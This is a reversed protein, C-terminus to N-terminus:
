AAVQNHALVADLTFSCGLLFTTLGEYYPQASNVLHVHGKNIIKYQLCDTSVNFDGLNQDGDRLIHIIPCAKQNQLCFQEFESAMEGSPLAVLNVQM